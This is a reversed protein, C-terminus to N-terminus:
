RERFVTTMTTYSAQKEFFKMIPKRQARPDYLLVHGEKTCCASLNEVEPLFAIDRISTPIPLNLM